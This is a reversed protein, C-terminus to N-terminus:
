RGLNISKNIVLAVQVSSGVVNHLTDTILSIYRRELEERVFINPVSVIARKDEITLLTM